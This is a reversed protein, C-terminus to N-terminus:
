SDPVFMLLGASGWICGASVASATYLRGWRPVAQDAPSAKRYSLYQGVRILQHVCLALSWIALVPKSVHGWMVLVLVLGVILSGITTTPSQDYVSRVQETHVRTQLGNM